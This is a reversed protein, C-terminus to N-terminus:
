RIPERLFLSIFVFQFVRAPSIPRPLPVAFLFICVTTTAALYIDSANVYLYQTVDKRLTPDFATGSVPATFATKSPSGPGAVPHPVSPPAPALLYFSHM